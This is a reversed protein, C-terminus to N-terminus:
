LQKGVFDKLEAATTGYSFIDSITLFSDKEVCYRASSVASIHLVGVSIAVAVHPLVVRKASGIL